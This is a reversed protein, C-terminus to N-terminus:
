LNWIDKRAFVLPAKVSQFVLRKSGYGAVIVVVGHCICCICVEFYNQTSSELFVVSRCCDTMRFKTSQKKEQRESARLKM